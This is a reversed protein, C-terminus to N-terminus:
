TWVCMAFVVPGGISGAGVILSSADERLPHVVMVASGSEPASIDSAPGDRRLSNFSCGSLRRGDGIEGRATLPEEICGMPLIGIAILNPSLSSM